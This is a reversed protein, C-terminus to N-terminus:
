QLIIMSAVRKHFKDLSIGGLLAVGANIPKLHNPNAIIPLIMLQNQQNFPLEQPASMVDLGRGGAVMLVELLRLTEQPLAHLFAKFAKRNPGDSFYKELEDGSPSPRTPRWSPPSM